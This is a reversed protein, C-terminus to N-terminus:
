AQKIIVMVQNIIILGQKYTLGNTFFLYGPPIESPFNQRRNESNCVSVTLRIQLLFFGFNRFILFRFAVIAIQLPTFRSNKEERYFMQYM